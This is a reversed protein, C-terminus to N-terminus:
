QQENVNRRPQRTRKMVENVILPAAAGVLISFADQRRCKAYGMVNRLPPVLVTALQALFGGVSAGLLQPNERLAHWSVNEECRLSWAHLMQGGVLALSAITSAEPSHKGYERRALAHSSLTGATLILAERLIARKEELTVISDGVTRKLSWVGGGPIELALALGPFIDTVLNIWLLQKPNFPNEGGLLLAGLTVLSESINTSLIFHVSRRLNERLGRGQGVALMLTQLKDDVVVIDAAQRAADTGNQGMAIGVDAARLAPSDNIGDGTMAVIKGRKQFAEVIRLKDSPNVRSFVHIDNVREALTETDLSELELGDMLESAYGHHLNLLKGIAQATLAQDGTMMCPQLGSERLQDILEKM